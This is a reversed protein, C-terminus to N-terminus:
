VEPSKSQYGQFRGRMIRELLYLTLNHPYNYPFDSLVQKSPLSHFERVTPLNLSSILQLGVVYM